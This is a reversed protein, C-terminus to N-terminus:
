VQEAGWGGAQDEERGEQGGAEQRRSGAWSVQSFVQGEGTNSVGGGVGEGVESWGRDM